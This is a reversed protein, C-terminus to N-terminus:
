PSDSKRASVDVDYLAGGCSQDFVMRLRPTEAGVLPESDSQRNILRRRPISEFGFHARTRTGFSVWSKKFIPTQGFRRDSIKQVRTGRTSFSVTFMVAEGLKALVEQRQKSVM